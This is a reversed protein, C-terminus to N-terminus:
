HFYTTRRSCKTKSFRDELPFVHHAQLLEAHLFVIGLSINTRAGSVIRRQFRDELVTPIKPAGPVIWRADSYFLSGWASYKHQAQFLEDSILFLDEHSFINHAQFLEQKFFSGVTSFAAHRSFIASSQFAIRPDSLPTNKHTSFCKTKSEIFNKFVIRLHFYTTRRSCNMTYFFSGWISYKHQAQIGPVSWANFFAIRLLIAKARMRFKMQHAGHRQARSPASCCPTRCFTSLRRVFM